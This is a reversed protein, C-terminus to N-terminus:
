FMCRKFNVEYDELNKDISDDQEFIYEISGNKNDVRILKSGNMVLYDALRKSNCSFEVIM